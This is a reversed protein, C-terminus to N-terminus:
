KFAKEMREVIWLAELTESQAHGTFTYVRVLASSHEFSTPITAITAKYRRNGNRDNKLGELMVIYEAKSTSIRHASTNSILRKLAM